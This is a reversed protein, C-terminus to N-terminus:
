SATGTFQWDDADSDSFYYSSSAPEAYIEITVGEALAYPSGAANVVADTDSRKYVVGTTNVISFESEEEDFTPAAPTVLVATSAVKKVVIASKMKVLAGSMRTEILYKYQNYDIDFDDFMAVNGGQNTGVNYDAPNVLIAVIEPDEELAEVPVIAAVRLESALEDLNKYIRRGVTDKLLMFRAIYTETTWM